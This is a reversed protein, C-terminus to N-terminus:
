DLHFLNLPIEVAKITRYRSVLFYIAVLLFQEVEYARKKM